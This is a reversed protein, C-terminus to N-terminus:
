ICSGSRCGAVEEGERNHPTQQLEDIPLFHRHDQWYDLLASAVVISLWSGAATNAAANDSRLEYVVCLLASPMATSHQGPTANSRHM